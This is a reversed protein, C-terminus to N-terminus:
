SSEAAELCQQSCGSRSAQNRGKRIRRGNVGKHAQTLRLGWPETDEGLYKLTHLFSISLDKGTSLSGIPTARPGRGAAGGVGRIGKVERVAQRQIELLLMHLFLPPQSSPTASQILPHSTLTSTGTCHKDKPGPGHGTKIEGQRM